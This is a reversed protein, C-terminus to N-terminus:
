DFYAVSAIVPCVYLLCCFIFVYANVLRSAAINVLTSHTFVFYMKVTFEGVVWRVDFSQM